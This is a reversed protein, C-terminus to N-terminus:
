SPGGRKAKEGALTSLLAELETPDVPKVLHVLFGAAKSRRQYEAEGYGTVALLTLGDLGPLERLRRGLEYGDMRPLAIDLIAVDPRFATVVALAEPGDRAARPEHGWQFSLISISIATDGDDDVVLVRLADM